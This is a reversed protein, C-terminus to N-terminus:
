KTNNNNSFSHTRMLILNDKNLDEVQKKEYHNNGKIWNTLILFFQRKM